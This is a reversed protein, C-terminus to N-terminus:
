DVVHNYHGANKKGFRRTRMLRRYEGADEGDGLQAHPHDRQQRRRGRDEPALRVILPVRFAGKWNTNKESRFPTGADLRGINRTGYAMRKNSKPM